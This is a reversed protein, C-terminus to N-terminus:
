LGVLTAKRINNEIRPFAGPFDSKFQHLQKLAELKTQYVGAHLKYYPASHEWDVYIMPYKQTFEAKTQEMKRRDTTALLQISYGKITSHMRNSAAYREMISKVEPSEVVNQASVLQFSLVLCIFIFFTFKYKMIVGIKNLYNYM